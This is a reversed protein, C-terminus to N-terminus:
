LVRGSMAHVNRLGGPATGEAAYVRWSYGLGEWADGYENCDLVWSALDPYCMLSYNDKSETLLVVVGHRKVLGYVVLPKLVERPLMVVKSYRDNMGEYKLSVGGFFDDLLAQGAGNADCLLRMSLGCAEGTLVDIGLSDLLKTIDWSSYTATSRM